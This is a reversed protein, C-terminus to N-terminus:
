VNMRVYRYVSVSVICVYVYIHRLPAIETSYRYKTTLQYTADLPSTETSIDPSLCNFVLGVWQDWQLRLLFQVLHSLRWRCGACPSTNGDSDCGDLTVAPYGHISSTGWELSWVLSKVQYYITSAGRHSHLRIRQRRSSFLTSPLKTEKRDSSSAAVIVSMAHCSALRAVEPLCGAASVREQTSLAAASISAADPINQRWLSGAQSLPISHHEQLFHWQSLTELLNFIFQYSSIDAVSTIQLESFRRGHMSETRLIRCLKLSEPLM